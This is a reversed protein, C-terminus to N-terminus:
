EIEWDMAQELGYIAGKLKDDGTGDGDFDSLRDRLEEKAERMEKLFRQTVPDHKWVRYMEKNVQEPM